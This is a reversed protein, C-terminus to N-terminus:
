EKGPEDEDPEAMSASYAKVIGDFISGLNRFTVLTAVAELQIKPQHTILGAYLLPVLKEADLNTLDLAKLLNCNVGAERLSRQAISLAAFTFALKYNAKGLKIDIGPIISDHEPHESIKLSKAV